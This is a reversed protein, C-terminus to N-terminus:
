ANWVKLLEEPKEIICDAHNEELEKKDRFGWLVGVTFLGAAKGTKMDVNTDGVYICDEKKLGLTEMAYVAQAKDPKRPRKPSSGVIMDMYDRGFLEEIVKEAGAQPKNTVVALKTGKEKMCDLVEKLGDYIKIGYNCHTQFIEQYDAYVKEWDKEITGGAALVARKTLEAPGDGAFYKYAEETQLELGSKELAYNGCYALSPLSNVLTGDLDFIVAQYM